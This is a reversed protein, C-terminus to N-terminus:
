SQEFTDIDWCSRDVFATWSVKMDLMDIHEAQNCPVPKSHFNKALYTNIQNPFVRVVLSPDPDFIKVRTPNPWNKTALTLDTM